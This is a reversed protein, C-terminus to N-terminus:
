QQDSSNGGLVQGSGPFKNANTSVPIDNMEISSNGGGSQSQQQQQVLNKTMEAWRCLCDILISLVSCHEPVCKTFINEDGSGTSTATDNYSPLSSTSPAALYNFKGLQQEGLRDLKGLYPQGLQM